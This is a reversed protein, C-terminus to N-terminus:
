VILVEKEWQVKAVEINVSNDGYIYRYGNWLYQNLGSEKSKHPNM